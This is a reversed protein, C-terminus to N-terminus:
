RLECRLEFWCNLANLLSDGYHRLAGYHGYHRKAWSKRFFGAGPWRIPACRPAPELRIPRAIQPNRIPPHGEESGEHHAQVTLKMRLLGFSPLLHLGSIREDYEPKVRTDLALDKACHPTKATREEEREKAPLSQPLPCCDM